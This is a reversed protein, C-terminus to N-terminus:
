NLVTLDRAAVDTQSSCGILDKAEIVKIRQYEAFQRAEKSLTPVSFLIKDRIGADYVATDFQM